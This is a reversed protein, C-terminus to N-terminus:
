ATVTVGAQALREIVSARELQDQQFSLREQTGSIEAANALAGQRSSHSPPTSVLFLLRKCSREPSPREYTRESQFKRFVSRM